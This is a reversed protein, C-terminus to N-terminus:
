GLKKLRETQVLALFGLIFLFDPVLLLAYTLSLSVSETGLVFVLYSLAFGLNSVMLFFIVVPSHKWGPFRFALLTAAFAVFAFTLIIEATNPDGSSIATFRNGYIFTLISGAALQLVMFGADAPQWRVLAYSICIMSLLNVLFIALSLHNVLDVPYDGPNADYSLIIGAQIIAAVVSLLQFVFGARMLGSTAFRLGVAGVVILAIYSLLTLQDGITTGGATDSVSTTGVLTLIGGIIAVGIFLGTFGQTWISTPKPQAPMAMAVPLPQYFPVGGVPLNGPYYPPGSIVGAPNITPAAGGAVPPNSARVTTDLPQSYRIPEVPQGSLAARFDQLLAGASQYRDAARKALAKNLVGELAPPLDPRVSGLKPPPETLHKLMIAAPNSGEFPVRGTLMQYVIIGLSYIDSQQEPQGQLHEPAMYTPTGFSLSTSGEIAGQEMLHALGFDSLLLRGDDHVLLNLPKLDLHAVHRAHAYDLAAAIQELYRLVEDPRLMGRSRLIQHLTGGGIYPMVLYARSGDFGFDDVHVINPQDLAALTQAERIFRERFKPSTFHQELLIKVAQQRNLLLHRARYVAGFGGQGLLDGLLYKEGLKQNTLPGPAAM